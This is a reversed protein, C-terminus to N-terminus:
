ELAQNKKWEKYNHLDQEVMLLCAAVVAADDIYGIVPIPDPILDFPNLVYLLAAVVAAITWWPAERYSGNFYDRVMQIMIKVDGIFRGLPGNGKFKKEIEDAKDVVKKLDEDTVKKAQEEITAKAKAKSMTQTSKKEKKKAM